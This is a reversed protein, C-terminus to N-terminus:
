LVANHVALLDWEVQLEVVPVLGVHLQTHHLQPVGESGRGKGGGSTTFPSSTGLALSCRCIVTVRVLGDVVLVVWVQDWFFFTLVQWQLQRAGTFM